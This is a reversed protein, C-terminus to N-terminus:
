STAPVAYIESGTSQGSHREVERGAATRVTFTCKMGWTPQLDPLTLRITRGDALLRAGTVTLKREDQHASGYNSTRKLNWVHVAYNGAAEVFQLPTLDQDRFVLAVHRALADNLQARTDGDVPARLDVGTVEAGIHEGLSQISIAM